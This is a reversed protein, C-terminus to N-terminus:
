KRIYWTESSVLWSKSIKEECLRELYRGRDNFRQRKKSKQEQLPPRWGDKYMYFCLGNTHVVIGPINNLMKVIKKELTKRFVREIMITDDKKLTKAKFLDSM